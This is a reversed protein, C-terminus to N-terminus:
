KEPIKFGLYTGASIGLLTLLTASFEPMSLRSWVSYIFLCGLVLTWTAMQFRHFSIGNADTLIDKLFGESVQPALSQEEVSIQNVLYDQRVKEVDKVQALSENNPSLPNSTIQANLTQINADVDKKETILKKLNEQISPLDSQKNLDVAVAGLATGAGIGILTLVSSNIIDYAGTILWLYIFSGLVLFFWFAMQCRSLSYPKPNTGQTPIGSDRLINSKRALLILFVTLFIYLISFAIFRISRIRIINFKNNGKITTVEPYENELGVSLETPRNFFNPGIAPAGLLDAWMEDNELNRILHYQLKQDQPRPAGSEPIVGQVKRGDLFLAIEQEHCNAIVKGQSDVCKARNVLTQLNNVKVVIIDGIGAYKKLYKDKEHGIAYADVVVIEQQGSLSETTSLLSDTQKIRNVLNEKRTKEKLSDLNNKLGSELEKIPLQAISLQRGGVTFLVVLLGVGYKSIFLSKAKM